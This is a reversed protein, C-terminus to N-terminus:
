SAASTPSSARPRGVRAQIALSLLGITVQEGTAVVVDQERESPRQNVTQVLKCCRNTEGSM